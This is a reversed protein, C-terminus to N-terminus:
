KAEASARRPIGLDAAMSPNLTSKWLFGDMYFHHLVVVFPIFGLWVTETSAVAAGFLISFGAYLLLHERRSLWALLLPRGADTNAQAFRGHHRRWCIAHYQLSHVAAAIMILAYLDSVLLYSLNYSAVALLVTLQAIWPLTAEGRRQRGLQERVYLVAVCAFGAYMAAILQAPVPIQPLGLGSFPMRQGFLVYENFRMGQGLRYLVPSACGLMLVLSMVRTPGRYGNKAAYIRVMGLHQKVVHFFQWVLWVMAVIPQRDTVFLAATIGAIVLMSVLYRRGHLARERPDFGIRVTTQMVHPMDTLMAFLAGAIALAAGSRASTYLLTSILCAGGLVALADINRSVLWRADDARVSTVAAIPVPAYISKSGITM